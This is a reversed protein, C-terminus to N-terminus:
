QTMPDPPPDDEEPADPDQWEVLAGAGAGVVAAAVMLAPWYGWPIPTKSLSLLIALYVPAFLGGGIAWQIVSRRTALPNTKDLLGM